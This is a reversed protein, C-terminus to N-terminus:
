NELIGYDSIMKENALELGHFLLRRNQPQIGKQECIKRKVISIEESPEVGLTTKGCFNITVNLGGIKLFM